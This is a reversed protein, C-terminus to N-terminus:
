GADALLKLNATHRTATPRSLHLVHEPLFIKVGVEAGSTRMRESSELSHKEERDSRTSVM